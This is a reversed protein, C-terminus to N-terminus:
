IRDSARTGGCIARWIARSCNGTSRTAISSAVKKEVRRWGTRRKMLRMAESAHANSSKLSPGAPLEQGLDRGEDLLDDVAVEVLDVEVRRLQGLEFAEDGLLRMDGGLLGASDARQCRLLRLQADLLAVHQLQLVCQRREVQRRVEGVEQRLDPALGQHQRGSVVTGVGLACLTEAADAAIEHHADLRLARRHQALLEQHLQWRQHLVQVFAHLQDTPGLRAARAARCAAAPAHAFRQLARREGLEVEVQHGLLELSDEVCGIGPVSETEDTPSSGSTSSAAM